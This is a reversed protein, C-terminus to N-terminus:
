GTGQAPRPELEIESYLITSTDEGYPARAIPQGNPAVVMSCGICKRGKWPGDAIPGVNSCGAIWIRFDRAIPGYNDVWLKGYPDKENDHDAPVAWACPSVIIQAGMLALARSIVQGPAFGDACIMVGITGLETTAVSLRDGLSYLHQAIDLEYIKRHHILVNGRPDILLASNFLKDGAREILGACVFIRSQQAAVRLQRSLSGDPLPEANKLASSDTWGFPLAEPLLVLRAGSRAAEAIAACARAFNQVHNGPEVHLQALALRFSV